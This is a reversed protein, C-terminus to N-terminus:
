KILLILEMLKLQISKSLNKSQTIFINFYTGPNICSVGKGTYLNM